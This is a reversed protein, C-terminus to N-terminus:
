GLTLPLSNDEEEPGSVPQAGQWSKQLKLYIDKGHLDTRSYMYALRFSRRKRLDKVLFLVSFMLRGLRDM